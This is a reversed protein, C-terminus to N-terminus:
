HNATPQLGFKIKKNSQKDTHDQDEDESIDMDSSEDQTKTRTDTSRRVTNHRPHVTIGTPPVLEAVSENHKIKANYNQIFTKSDESLTDFWIDKSVSLLGKDNPTIKIDGDQNTTRRIRKTRSPPYQGQEQYTRKMRQYTNRAKRNDNRAQVITREEKRIKTYCESLGSNNSQLIKVIMAYEPDKINKLFIQVKHSSSFGEGPILDLESIWTKFKNIYSSASSEGNGGSMKLSQIKTRLADATENKIEEGDYWDCLAHWALYGDKEQKFDNVLHHPHGEVTANSLLAFILKNTNPHKLAHEYDELVKDYGCTSFTCLTREKWKNWLEVKGNFDVVKQSEIKVKSTTSDTGSAIINGM